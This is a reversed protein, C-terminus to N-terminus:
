GAACLASDMWDRGFTQSRVDLAQRYSLTHEINM